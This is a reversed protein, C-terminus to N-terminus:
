DEHVNVASIGATNFAEVVLDELMQAVEDRLDVTWRTRHLPGELLREAETKADFRIKRAM